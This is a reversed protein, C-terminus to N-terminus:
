RITDPPKAEFYNGPPVNENEIESIIFGIDVIYDSGIPM